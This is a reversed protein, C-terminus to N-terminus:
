FECFHRSLYDTISAVLIIILMKRQFDHISIKSFIFRFLIILIKNKLFIENIERGSLIVYVNDRTVENTSELRDYSSNKKFNNTILYTM